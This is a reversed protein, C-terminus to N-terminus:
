SLDIEYWTMNFSFKRDDSSTGNTPQYVLLGEGPGLEFGSPRNWLLPDPAILTQAGYMSGVATAVAPVMASALRAGVTVTMGTVATRAILQATAGATLYKAPTTAAGSATGTFTFKDFAVEPATVTVTTGAKSFSINLSTILANVTATTPLQFWYLGTSTGDHASAVVTQIPSGLFYKGTITYAHDPVMFHEHVTDSGVVKTITRVNKGANGSDDPLEILSAVPAAM